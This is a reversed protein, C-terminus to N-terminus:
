GQFRDRRRHACLATFGFALLLPASPEPVTISNNGDLTVAGEQALLRGNVTVDSAATITTLALITGSVDSGAALTVSSGVQWFVRSAQAGGTLIMQSNAATILTTGMQFIWVADPNGQGNLTLVGSLFLSSNSSYVGPSLNLGLLDSAAALVVDPSRSVADAYADNLAFKAAQTIESSGYNIGELVVNEMGVIADSTTPFLGVDGKITTSSSAGTITIASGALLAFGSADGLDIMATEGNASSTIICVSSIRLGWRKLSLFNNGAHMECLLDKISLRDRYIDLSRNRPRSSSSKHVFAPETSNLSTFFKCYISLFAM